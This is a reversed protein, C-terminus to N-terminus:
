NLTPVGKQELLEGVDDMAGKDLENCYVEWLVNILLRTFATVVREDAQRFAEDAMKRQSKDLGKRAIDWFGHYPMLKVHLFEHLVVEFLERPTDVDSAFTLFAESYAPYLEAYGQADQHVAERTAERVSVHVGDLELAHYLFNSQSQLHQEFQDLM